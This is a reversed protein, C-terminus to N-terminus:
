FIPIGTKNKLLSGKLFYRKEYFLGSNDTIELNMMPEDYALIIRSKKVTYSNLFFTKWLIKLSKKVTYSNLFYTIRWM